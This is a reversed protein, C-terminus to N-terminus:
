DNHPQRVERPERGHWEKRAKRAKTAIRAWAECNPCPQGEPHDTTCDPCIIIKPDPTM